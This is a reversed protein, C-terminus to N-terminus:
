GVGRCQYEVIKADGLGECLPISKYNEEINKSCCTKLIHIHYWHMLWSLNEFTHNNFM